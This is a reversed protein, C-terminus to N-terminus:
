QRLLRAPTEPFGTASEMRGTTWHNEHAVAKNMDIEVDIM